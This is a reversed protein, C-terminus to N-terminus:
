WASVSRRRLARALNGGAQPTMPASVLPVRVGLLNTVATRITTM